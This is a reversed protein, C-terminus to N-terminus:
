SAAEEMRMKAKYKQQLLELKDRVNRKSVKFNPHDSANLNAAIENWLGGREKRRYPHKWPEVVLVETFALNM